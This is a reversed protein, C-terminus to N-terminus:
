FGGPEGASIMDFGNLELVATRDFGIGDHDCDADLRPSIRSSRGPHLDAAAEDNVIAEFCTHTADVGDAFTGFVGSDAVAEYLGGIILCPHQRLM